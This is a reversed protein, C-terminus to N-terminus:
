YDEIYNAVIADRVRQNLEDRREHPYDRTAIPRGLVIKVRGGPRIIVHSRPLFKRTGSVSMPVIPLGTRLALTVGGKKFEHVKGDRSRTGEAYFLLCFGSNIQAAVRENIRTIAAEPNSRDIVIHDSLALAQGFVPLRLLEKKAVFRIDLPVAGLTAFIDFNSLHNSVIVYSRHRDLHEVGEVDVHIGCVKLIWRGWIRGFADVAWGRRTVLVVLIALTGWWVTIVFIALDAALGWLWHGVRSILGRRQKIM